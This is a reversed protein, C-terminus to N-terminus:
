IVPPGAHRAPRVPHLLPRHDYPSDYGTARRMDRMSGLEMAVRRLEALLVRLDDPTPATEMRIRARRRRQEASAKMRCDDCYPRPTGDAATAAPSGCRRCMGAARARAQFESGRNMRRGDAARGGPCGADAGDGPADDGDADAVARRPPDDPPAGDDPAGDPPVPHAGGEPQPAFPMVPGPPPVSPQAWEPQAVVRRVPPPPLADDSGHPVAGSDGPAYWTVMDGSWDGRTRPFKRPVEPPKRRWFGRAIAQHHQQRRDCAGRWCSRGAGRNYGPAPALTLCVGAYVRRCVGACKDLMGGAYWCAPFGTVGRSEPTFADVVGGAYQRCVDLPTSAVSRGFGARQHLQRM